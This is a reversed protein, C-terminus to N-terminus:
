WTQIRRVRGKAAGANVEDYAIALSMVSDQIVNDDPVQYGRLESDLQPWDRASYQILDNEFGIELNSIIRSKSPKSTWFLEIDREPIDLNEAVAEGPGNKEVKIKSGPYARWGREIAAQIAPYAAGRMRIYEVIQVPQVSLDLCTGVAADHHRGIDWAWIYKHGVEAPTPGEGYCNRELDERAFTFTGGGFLADEWSMAYEQRFQTETMSKRKDEYWKKTRDPRNLAGVFFANHKTDGSMSMRWYKAPYNNPGMGTTIIHCTGAMSPEIAQWVREPNGMRAWEDVHGHTCTAEVATDEDAPYAVLYREDDPGGHLTKMTATGSMPLQMWTPLRSLGFMVADLLERAAAERRSFLHVRANTDRFRAVWGDYACGLTTFGLKRAKLAFIWDHLGMCEVFEEQGPWLVNGLRKIEGTNQDRFHWHPLFLRFDTAAEVLQTMKAEDAQIEALYKPDVPVVKQSM